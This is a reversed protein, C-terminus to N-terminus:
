ARAFPDSERIHDIEENVIKLWDTMEEQTLREDVPKPSNSLWCMARDKWDGTWSYTEAVGAIVFARMTAGHLSDINYNFGDRDFNSNM